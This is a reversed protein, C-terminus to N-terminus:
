KGNDVTEHASKPSPWSPLAWIRVDQARGRLGQAARDQFAGLFADIEADKAAGAAELAEQSAVVRSDFQRNLTELRSAVNVTDGTVTFEFRRRGGVNGMLVRGYHIGIAIRVQEMTLLSDTKTCSMVPADEPSPEPIGFCALAGDGLYKDLSGAYAFVHREVRDHFDRLLAIAEGPSLRESLATFGVIDIFMVAADQTRDLALPDDAELLRDLIRPSFYRALNRRQREAVRRLRQERLARRGGLALANALIAFSPLTYGIWLNSQAFALGNAFTWAALLAAVAAAGWAVPLLAALVAAMLGGGLIAAAEVATVLDGRRLFRGELINDAATAFHEVGPLNKSFPSVFTDGAGTVSAGIFVLKDALAGQAARGQLVDIASATPITGAPGYYNVPLRLRRDTPLFRGGLEIGDPLTAAVDGPELRLFDRAAAIALSPYFRGEFGIAPDDYRLAGGEDLVVTAHALAGAQATLSQPPVLLGAPALGMAPAADSATQVLAYASARVEQPAVFANARGPEFVFVYPLVVNGHRRLAAALKRDQEPRPEALLLDLAIVRPGEAAVSDLLRALEGRPLPWSGLSAITREDILVIAVEGGPAVPGRALFRLDLFYAEIAALWPLKEAQLFAWLAAGTVCAALAVGLLRSGGRRRTM